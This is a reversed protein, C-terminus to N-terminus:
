TGIWAVVRRNNLPLDEVWGGSLCHAPYLASRSKEFILNGDTRHRLVDELENRFGSRSVLILQGLVKEKGGNIRNQVCGPGHANIVTERFLVFQEKRKALPILLRDVARGRKGWREVTGREIM